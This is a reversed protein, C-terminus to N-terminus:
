AGNAAWPGYIAWDDPVQERDEGIFAYDWVLETEAALGTISQLPPVVTLPSVALRCTPGFGRAERCLAEVAVRFNRHAAAATVGM